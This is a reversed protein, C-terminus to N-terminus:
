KNSKNKKSKSQQEKNYENLWTNILMERFFAYYPANTEWVEGNLTRRIRSWTADILAKDINMKTEVLNNISDIQAKSISDAKAKEIADAGPPQSICSISFLIAIATLLKKM